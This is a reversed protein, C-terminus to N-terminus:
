SDRDSEPLLSEGNRYEPLGTMDEMGDIIWGLTTQLPVVLSYALWQTLKHFPVLIEAESVDSTSDGGPSFKIGAPPPSLSTAESLSPIERTLANCAWVDGLSVGGLSVRGPWINRLGDILVHFLSSIHIRRGSIGDSASSTPQSERLLYDSAHFTFCSIVIIEIKPSLSSPM